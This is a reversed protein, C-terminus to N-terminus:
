KPPESDAALARGFVYDHHRELTVRGTTECYSCPEGLVFRKGSCEPCEALGLRHQASSRKANPTDAPTHDGTM